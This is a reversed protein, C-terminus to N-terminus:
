THLVSVRLWIKDEQDTFSRLPFNFYFGCYLWHLWCARFSSDGWSTYTARPKSTGSVSAETWGWSVDKLHEVSSSWDSAFLHEVLTLSLSSRIFIGLLFCCYFCLLHTLCAMLFNELTWLERISGCNRKWANWTPSPFLSFCVFHSDTGPCRIFVHKARFWM